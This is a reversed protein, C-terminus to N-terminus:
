SDIEQLTFPNPEEGMVITSCNQVATLYGWIVIAAYDKLLLSEGSVFHIAMHLSGDDAPVYSAFTIRELNILREGPLSRDLFRRFDTM